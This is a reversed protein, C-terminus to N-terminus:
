RSPAGQRRERAAQLAPRRRGHPCAGLAPPGASAALYRALRPWRGADIRARARAIPSSSPASPWTPSRCRTASPLGAGPCSRRWTTSPRTGPRRQGRGTGSRRRAQGPLGAEGRARLLVAADSRAPPHRRVGRALAGPRSGRRRGPLAAPGPVGTGPLCHDGVFGPDAIGQDEIVPIKGLPHLAKVKPSGM